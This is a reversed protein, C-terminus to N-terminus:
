KPALCAAVLPTDTWGDGTNTPTEGLVYSPDFNGAAWGVYGLIVTTFNQEALSRQGLLPYLMVM